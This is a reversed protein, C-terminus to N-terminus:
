IKTGFNIEFDPDKALMKSLSNFNYGFLHDQWFVFDPVDKENLARSALFDIAQFPTLNPIIIKDLGKSEEIRNKVVNDVTDNVQVNLHQSLISSIIESYKGTYSKRIKQQESLLFEQSIFHLTYVESNMGINVRDTVKNILYTGKIELEISADTDAYKAMHIFIFESGDFRVKRMLGVGDQIVITGTVCPFFLNDYINLEQFIGRIDIGFKSSDSTINQTPEQFTGRPIGGSFITLAKILYQSAQKIGVNRTM